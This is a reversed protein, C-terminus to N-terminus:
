KVVVAEAGIQAENAAGSALAFLFYAVALVTVWQKLHDPRSSKFRRGGAGL